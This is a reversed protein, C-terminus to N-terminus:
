RSLGLGFMDPGLGLELSTPRIHGAGLESIDQNRVGWRSSERPAIFPGVCRELM